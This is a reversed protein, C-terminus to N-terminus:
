NIRVNSHHIPAEFQKIEGIENETTPKVHKFKLNISLPMLLNIINQEKWLDTIELKLNKLIPNLVLEDNINKVEHSINKSTKNNNFNTKLYINLKTGEYNM